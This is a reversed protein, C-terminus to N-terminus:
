IAMLSGIPQLDPELWKEPSVSPPQGDPALEVLDTPKASGRLRMSLFQAVADALLPALTLKTPSAVCLNELGYSQVSHKDMTNRMSRLEGKPAQYYGWVISSDALASTRALLTARIDRLWLRAATDTAHDTAFSVYNSVLWHMSGAHERSVLFLGRTEHGHAVLSLRPLEPGRLVLMMSTRNLGNGRFRTVSSALRLNDIGACLVIYSSRLRLQSGGRDIVVGTIRSGERELAQVHAVVFQVEPRRGLATAASRLWGTFDYTAEQTTFTRAFSEGRISPPATSEQFELGALDWAREAVGAEYANAFVLSSTSTVPEVVGNLLSAWRDAGLRLNSVLDSSPSLYIHGRHMYGHSHNSQGSGAQEAEVITVTRGEGALRSAILLGAAGAGVILVEGAWFEEM